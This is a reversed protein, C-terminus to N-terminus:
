SPCGDRPIATADVVPIHLLDVGWLGGLWELSDQAEVQWAEWGHPGPVVETDLPAWGLSKVLAVFRRTDPLYETDDAGGGLYLPTRQAAPLSAVTLQPSNAATAAGFLDEPATFVGSYSAVWSFLGPHRLSINVAGFGGASLGAIGRYAAGLTRYRADISPVLDGVLWSEVADGVADDGWWSGDETTPDDDPFIAIMPMLQGNRYLGDLIIPLSSGTGVWDAGAGSSGHLFYVVPFRTTPLVAYAGPVDALVTHGGVAFTEVHGPLSQPPPPPTTDVPSCDHALSAPETAAPATLIAPREVIVPAPQTTHGDGRASIVTTLAAATVCAAVLAGAIVTVRRGRGRM